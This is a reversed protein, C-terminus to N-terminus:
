QLVHVNDQCCGHSLVNLDEGKIRSPNRVGKVMVHLQRMKAGATLGPMVPALVGRQSCGGRGPGPHRGAGM